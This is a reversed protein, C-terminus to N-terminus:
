AEMKPEKLTVQSSWGTAIKCTRSIEFHLKPMYTISPICVFFTSGKETMEIVAAVFCIKM